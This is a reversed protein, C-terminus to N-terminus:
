GGHQGGADAHAPCAAHLLCHWCPWGSCRQPAAANLTAGGGAGVAPKDICRHRRAAMEQGGHAAPTRAAGGHSSGSGGAARRGHCLRRTLATHNPPTNQQAQRHRGTPRCRHGAPAVSITTQALQKYSIRRHVDPHQRYDGGDNPSHPGSSSLFHWSRGLKSTRSPGPQVLQSKAGPWPALQFNLTCLGGYWPSWPSREWRVNHTDLRLLVNLLSDPDGHM